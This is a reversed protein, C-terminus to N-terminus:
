GAPLRPPEELLRAAEADVALYGAGEAIERTAALHEDAAPTRGGDRRVMMRGWELHTRALHFPARLRRHTDLASAFWREADDYRHRASDLIGLYHAVEGGVQTRTCIVQSSWPHLRDHVLDIAVPEEMRAAVEAWYSMATLVSWDGLHPFGDATEAALLARAEAHKGTEHYLRARAAHFMPLGVDRDLGEMLAVVEASRGQHWRIVHLQFRHLVLADPQGSSEGLTLADMSTAEAAPLDGRLLALSSENLTTLWRLTPQGIRAALAAAEQHCRNTEVLDGSEVAAYARQFMTWFLGIPDHLELALREAEATVALRDSLREPVHVADLLRIFVDLLTAPDGLRRAIAVAEDVLQRRIAWDQSTISEQALLGLLSARQRTDATGAAEVAAEILAMRAPDVRGTTSYVGRNTALAAAILLEPDDLQRALQGAAFLSEAYAPDGTQRQADGIGVLLAGRMPLDADPQRDVLDLAQRYWRLAEDPALKDLAGDGAARAYEIAKTVERGTVRSGSAQFYHYALDTAHVASDSGAIEEITEALRRHYQARRAPPLADYLAHGVLAHAFTFDEGAVNVVLTAAVAADLVDLAEDHGIGSAAALVRLDFDRGAASAISLVRVAEDGLRAARRGIVQRVGIPLGRQGVDGDVSWRGDVDRTILGTEALHRLLEAVFFPNGDTERLLADCLEDASTATSVGGFAELLDSLQAAELGELELQAVGHERHLSALVDQLPHGPALDSTRFTGVILVPLALDSALAHRLLHLSPADAWHLDDLLVVVPHDRGAAQLVRLVADFLLYRSTAPDSSTLPATTGQSLAPGLRSLESGHVALVADLLGKPRSEVLHSLASAWAQYPVGLEEDFRGYAVSSGGEYATRAFVAALTTKGIGPEGSVLVVRLRRQEGTAKLADVLVALEADRGVFPAEVVAELRPSLPVASEWASRPEWRVEVTAVPEPLGKLELLGVDVLEVGPHRGAVASVVATALVQGSNAMTCLRAAAVVPDGFYDGETETVEGAGIGIRIALPDARGRSQHEAAQQMHVACSLAARASEFAVMLGDGLTKVVIGSSAAVEARLVAFHSERVQDALAPELRSALATSGVVDTFLVTMVRTGGM